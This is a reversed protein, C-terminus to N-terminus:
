PCSTGLSHALEELLTLARRRNGQMLERIVRTASKQEIVVWVPIRKDQDSGRVYPFFGGEQQLSCLGTADIIGTFNQLMYIGYWMKAM